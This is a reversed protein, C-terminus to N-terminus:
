WAGLESTRVSLRGREFDTAVPGVAFRSRGLRNKAVFLELGEEEKMNLSVWLDSVRVKHMSDAVHHLDLRKGSEKSPRSAQSATWVWMNRAVALDRRLGEYVHKMAQYENTQGRLEPAYMKDAYDVCLLEMQRGHTDEIQEVWNLVDRVSTAGPPMDAVECVGISDELELVRREAEARSSDSDLILNTPVGTLNAYLRALVVHEPLELTIYGVLMQRTVGEVAQHALALSKGAGSDGMWVGLCKRAMGNEIQMDLEFVGTPLRVLNKSAEIVRFGGVNLRTSGLVEARGLQEASELVRRVSSFDGQKAWQDAALQMAEAQMRRQLLPVMVDAIQEPDGAGGEEVEDFMVGVAARQAETIKGEFVRRRLRQLVVSGSAPGRGSEKAIERCAKIVLEGEESAFCDPDLHMGVKGWFRPNEACHFLVMREFVPDLDYNQKIM